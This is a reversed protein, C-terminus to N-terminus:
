KKKENKNLDNKGEITYTYIHVHTQTFLLSSLFNMEKTLKKCYTDIQKDSYKNNITYSIFFRNGIKHTIDDLEQRITEKSLM